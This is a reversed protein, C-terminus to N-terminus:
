SSPTLHQRSSPPMGIEQLTRLFSILSERSLVGLVRGEKMVPLQNVGDEDMMKLADVLPMDPDTVNIEDVPIMREAVTTVGWTDHPADKIRHLTLLGQMKEGDMVIFFRRGQGFIHDDALEQLTTDPTIVTFSRNMAQSVTHGALLDQVTQQQVQANAASELFWGIFAIWLGGIFNGSFMQWVGFLIFLFAIFRGVNAAILTARRFSKTIGWVIARFVRGGDLPFGPILNFLGLTANILALYKALALLPAVSGSVPQLLAFVGALAFSVVPGAIAIWFEALANPPETSIQSIGGFIFLTIKKVPIKYRIAVVSHGLEHLLVSVFLMIATIAGVIWYEAIPWNKFEVPFYGTALTWTLLIFILFWSFDLEIPIGFITGLHISQFRM